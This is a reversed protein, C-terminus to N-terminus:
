ERLALLLSIREGESKSSVLRQSAKHYVWVRVAFSTWVLRSWSRTISQWRHGQQSRFCRALEQTYAAIMSGLARRQMSRCTGQRKLSPHSARARTWPRRTRAICRILPHWQGCLRTPEARGIVSPHRQNSYRSSNLPEPHLTKPHHNVQKVHKTTPNQSLQCNVINVGGNWFYPMSFIQSRRSIPSHTLPYCIADTTCTFMLSSSPWAQFSSKTRTSHHLYELYLVWRAARM